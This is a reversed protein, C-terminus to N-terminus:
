RVLWLSGLGALITLGLVVAMQRRLAPSGLALAFGGKLVSNGVAALIV